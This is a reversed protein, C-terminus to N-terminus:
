EALRRRRICCLCTFINTIFSLILMLSPLVLFILSVGLSLDFKLQHFEHNHATGFSLLMLGAACYVVSEIVNM